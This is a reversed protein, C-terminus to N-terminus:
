SKSSEMVMHEVLIRPLRNFPVNFYDNRTRDPTTRNNREDRPFHEKANAINENISNQHKQLQDERFLELAKKFQKDSRIKTAHFETRMRLLCMEEISQYGPNHGTSM